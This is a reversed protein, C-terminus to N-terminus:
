PVRSRQLSCAPMAQWIRSRTKKGIWNSDLMSAARHEENLVEAMDPLLPTIEAM